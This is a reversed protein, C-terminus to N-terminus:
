GLISSKFEFLGPQIEVLDNAVASVSLWDYVVSEGNELQYLPYLEFTDKPNLRGLQEPKIICSNNAYVVTYGLDAGHDDVVKHVLARPIMDMSIKRFYGANAADMIEKYSSEIDSM